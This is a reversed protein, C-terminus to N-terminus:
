ILFDSIPQHFTARYFLTLPLMFLSSKVIQKAILLLTKLKKLFMHSFEEAEKLSSCGSGLARSLLHPHPYLNLPLDLAPMEFPRRGLAKGNEM